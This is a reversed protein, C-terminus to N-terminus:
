KEVVNSTIYCQAKENYNFRKHLNDPLVNWVRKTIGIQRGESREECLAAREVAEGFCIRDREKKTGLRTVLTTGLDIGVKLQLGAMERLCAPLSMQMSKQLGIAASVVKEAIAAKNDPPLHFIGQIRDGQYQIRLGQYDDKIVLALEQRIAHFVRLARRKERESTADDIYDTFGSVDAFLSAAMVRRVNFISLEDLNMPVEAPSGSIKDLSYQRKEATLQKALDKRKWPLSFDKLLEDLPEGTVPKLQYLDQQYLDQGVKDCCQQLCDPLTAYMWQTLRLRNASSIIKAAHNAPSGLFLLEQDGRIGDRTGIATGIDTGSAITFDLWVPFAPNFISQVFEKLALEFLLAQTALQMGIQFVQHGTRQRPLYFLAHLKTGQFHVCEGGFVLVLRKVARQYLHVAQILQQYNSQTGAANGKLLSVMHAFNTVEVYVHVGFIERCVTERLLEKLNIASDLGDTITLKRVENRGMGGLHRRIRKVSKDYDWSM